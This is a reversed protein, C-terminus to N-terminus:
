MCAPLVYVFFLHIFIFKLFTSANEHLIGFLYIHQACHCMDIIWSSPLSLCSSWSSSALRPNHSSIKDWFLVGCITIITDNQLFLIYVTKRMKGNSKRFEYPRSHNVCKARITKLEFDSRSNRQFYPFNLDVSRLVGFTCSCSLHYCSPTGFILWLEAIFIWPEQRERVLFDGM